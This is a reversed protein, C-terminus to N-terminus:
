VLLNSKPNAKAEAKARKVGEKSLKVIQKKFSGFCAKCEINKHKKCHPGDDKMIIDVELPDRTDWNDSGATFTNDERYDVECQGCVEKGHACFEYDGLEIMSGSTSSENSLVPELPPLTANANPM